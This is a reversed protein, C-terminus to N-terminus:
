NIIQRFASVHTREGGRYWAYAAISGIAYPLYADKGYLYNPQYMYVNKKM